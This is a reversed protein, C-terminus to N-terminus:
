SACRVLLTKSVGLHHHWGWFWGFTWTPTQIFNRSVWPTYQRLLYTWRAQSHFWWRQILHFHMEAAAYTAPKKAVAKRTLHFVHGSRPNEPSLIVQGSKTHTDNANPNIVDALGSNRIQWFTFKGNRISNAFDPGAGKTLASPDSPNEWQCISWHGASVFKLVFDCSSDTLRM